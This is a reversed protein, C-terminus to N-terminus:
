HATFSWLWGQIPVLRKGPKPGELHVTEGEQFNVTGSSNKLTELVTVDVGGVIDNIIPIAEMNVSCYGHIPLGYFLRSVAKMCLFTGRLNASIVADFDEEKMFAILGDKTIGANNVLIEVSGFDKRIEQVTTKTEDGSSVDCRYAKASIGYSVCKEVTEAAAAENGSYIVAINAGLEALRVAVARGIGRSAGTVIANKGKIDM